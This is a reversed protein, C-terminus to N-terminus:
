FHVENQTLQEPSYTPYVMPKCNPCESGPSRWPIGASTRSNNFPPQRNAIQRDAWVWTGIIGLFLSLVVLFSITIEISAQARRM